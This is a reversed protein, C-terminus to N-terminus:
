PAKHQPTAVKKTVKVLKFNSDLVVEARNSEDAGKIELIWNSGEKRADALPNYMFPRADFRLREPRFFDAGLEGYLSIKAMWKGQGYSSTEEPHAAVYRWGEAISHFLLKSHFMTVEGNTAWFDVWEGDQVRIIRNPNLTCSLKESREAYKVYGAKSYGLGWWLFAGSAPAYFATADTYVEGDDNGVWRFIRREM